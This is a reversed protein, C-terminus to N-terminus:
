DVCEDGAKCENVEHERDSTERGRSDHVDSVRPREDIYPALDTM